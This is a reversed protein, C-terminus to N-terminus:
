TTQQRPKVRKKGCRFKKKFVETRELVVKKRGFVTVKVWRGEVKSGGKASSVKQLGENKLHLICAWKNETAGKKEWTTVGM